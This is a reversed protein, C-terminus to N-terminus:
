CRQAKMFKIFPNPLLAVPKEGSALPKFAIQTFSFLAERSGCVPLIETAPNPRPIAYRAALWDACTARLEDSGQTAPYQALGALGDVLAQRICDPTPHKPEGISLNIPTREPNPTIGAFLERLKQFPYPQLLDLAPNM